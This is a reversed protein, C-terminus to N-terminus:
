VDPDSGPKRGNMPGSERALIGYPPWPEYEWTTAGCMPCQEPATHRSAGYRCECCRFRSLVATRKVKLGHDAM